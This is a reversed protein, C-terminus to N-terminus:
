NQHASQGETLQRWWTQTGLHASHSGHSQSNPSKRQQVNYRITSFFFLGQRIKVATINTVAVCCDSGVLESQSRQGYQTVLASNDMVFADTQKSLTLIGTFPEPLGKSCTQSQLYASSFKTFFWTRKWQRWVSQCLTACTKASCTDRRQFAEATSIQKERSQWWYSIRGMYMRPSPNAICIHQICAFLMKKKENVIIYNLTWDHHVACKIQWCRLRAPACYSESVRMYIQVFDSGGRLSWM